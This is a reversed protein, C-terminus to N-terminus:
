RKLNRLVPQCVLIHHFVLCKADGGIARSDYPLQAELIAAFLCNKHTFFVCLSVHRICLDVSETVCDIHGRRSSLCWIYMLRACYRSLLTAGAHSAELISHVGSCRQRSTRAFAVAAVRM